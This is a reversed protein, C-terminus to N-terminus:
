SRREVSRILDRRRDLVAADRGRGGSVRDIQSDRAHLRDGGAGGSLRDRGSGGSITDNGGRGLIRDNGGLGCLVDDGRTGAIRNSGNSGTRTCTLGGVDPVRPPNPQDEALEPEGLWDPQRNTGTGTLKHPDEGGPGMVHLQLPGDRNSVFALCLGTNAWVPDTDDAPHNSLRFQAGGTSRTYYVESDISDSGTHELRPSDFAILSEPPEPGGRNRFLNWSLNAKDAPGASVERVPGSGDAAV